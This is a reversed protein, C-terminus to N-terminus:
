YDEYNIDPVEEFNSGLLTPPGSLGPWPHLPFFVKYDSFTKSFDFVGPIQNKGDIPSLCIGLVNSAYCDCDHLIVFKIIDKIRNVTETRAQGPSQDVFALDFDMTYLLPFSDLFDIWHQAKTDNIVNLKGPVYYFKHWGSNDDEYGDGRYRDMFKKMWNWDDEVTVLTRKTERCIEHLIATSNDGCGFEIIAGDTQMAMEYLVPQHTAWDNTRHVFEIEAFLSASVCVCATMISLIKV